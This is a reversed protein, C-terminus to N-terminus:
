RSEPTIVRVDSPLCGKADVTPCRIRQLSAANHRAKDTPTCDKLITCDYPRPKLEGYETVIYSRQLNGRVEVSRFRLQALVGKPGVIEPMGLLWYEVDASGCPGVCSVVFLEKEVGDNFLVIGRNLFRPQKSTNIILWDRANKPRNKAEAALRRQEAAQQAAQQQKVEICVPDAAIEDPGRPDAPSCRYQALTAQKRQDVITALAVQKEQATVPSLRASGEGDPRDDARRRARNPAPPRSLQKADLDLLVKPCSSRYRIQGPGPPDCSISVEKPNAAWAKCHALLEAQTACVPVPQGSPTAIDRAFAPAKRTQTPGGSTTQIVPTQQSGSPHRLEEMDKAWAAKLVAAERKNAEVIQQDQTPLESNNRPGVHKASFSDEEPTLVWYEKGNTVIYARFGMSYLIAATEGSSREKEVFAPTVSLFDLRLAPQGERPRHGSLTTEKTASSGAHREVRSGGTSPSGM